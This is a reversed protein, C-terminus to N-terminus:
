VIMERLLKLLLEIMETFEYSHYHRITNSVILTILPLPVKFIKYYRNPTPKVPPIITNLKQRLHQLLIYSRMHDVMTQEYIDSTLLTSVTKEEFKEIAMMLDRRVFEILSNSARKPILYFLIGILYLIIATIFGYYIPVVEEFVLYLLPLLISLGLTWMFSGWVAFDVFKNLHQTLSLLRTSINYIESPKCMLCTGLIVEHIHHKLSLTIRKFSRTGVLIYAAIRATWIFTRPFIITSYIIVSGLLFPKEMLIELNKKLYHNFFWLYAPIIFLILFVITDVMSNRIVTEIFSTCYSPRNRNSDIADIIQDLEELASPIVIFARGVALVSLGWGILYPFVILFGPEKWLGTTNNEIFIYQIIVSVLAPLAVLVALLLGYLVAKHLDGKSIIKHFGPFVLEILKDYIM